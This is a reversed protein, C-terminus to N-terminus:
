STRTKLSQLATQVHAFIDEAQDQSFDQHVVKKVGFDSLVLSHTPQVGHRRLCAVSCKLPCGDLTLIERGSKATRVLATVDGGVGAICSMEAIQFRDAKIALYNAM